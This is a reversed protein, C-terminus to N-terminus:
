SASVSQPVFGVDAPTGGPIQSPRGEVTVCSGSSVDAQGMIFAKGTGDDVVFSGPGTKGVEGTITTSGSGAELQGIKADGPGCGGGGGLMSCGATSALLAVAVVVGVTRARSIAVM